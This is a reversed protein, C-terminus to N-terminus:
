DGAAQMKAGCWRRWLARYVRELNAIAREGDCLRSMLVEERLTQRLHALGDIDASWEVARSVYGAEDTAVWNPRGVRVLMSAAWRSMMTNGLLTVVPVGMWLAEFTTTSGNFPVTDLAIDVHNYLALHGGVPDAEGASSAMVLQEPSVGEARFLGFLRERLLRSSLANRYKLMLRSNPVAKLAGAWLRITAPTIKSPNNFSGFTIRGETLVPPPGVVPAGDIPRQISFVPVRIVRETFREASHRPVATLDAILYGMGPVASTTGDHASVVVPAPQHAAVLGRNRDFHSALIVLIDVGERRILRAAEADDLGMVSHWGDALAEIQATVHDPKQVDAFALVRFRNRDHGSIWPWVNRAIPHHRFDSSLYGITLRRDGDPANAFAIKAGSPPAFKAAFRRHEAFLATTSLGAVYLMSTLLNRHVELVSPVIALTRRFSVVASASDGLALMASATNNHGEAMAPALAVSSRAHKVAGDFDGSARLSAALNSHFEGQDPKLALASRLAEIAERYRERDHLWRGLGNGAEAMTPKAALARRFSPGAGDRDPGSMLANGLNNHIEGLGPALAMARRFVPAAAQSRGQALLVNGQNNHLEAAEPNYRVGEEYLRYAEDLRRMEQYLGALQLRIEHSDPALRLARDLAKAAGVPDQAAALLTGLAAHAASSHAEITATRRLRNVSAAYEGTGQGVLGFMSWANANAPDAALARRLAVSAEATRGVTMAALAHDAHFEAQLPAAAAAAALDPLGSGARGAQFAALGALHLADPHGPLRELARRYYAEAEAMRGVRHRALGEEILATVAREVEQRDGRM